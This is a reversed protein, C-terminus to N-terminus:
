LDLSVRAVEDLLFFGVYGSVRMSMYSVSPGLDRVHSCM